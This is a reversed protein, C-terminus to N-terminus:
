GTVIRSACPVFVTLGMRYVLYCHGLLMFLNPLNWLFEHTYFGSHFSGSKQDPNEGGPSKWKAM